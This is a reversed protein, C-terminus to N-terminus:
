CNFAIEKDCSLEENIFKYYIKIKQSYPQNKHTDRIVHSPYIKEGVEIRNVFTVLIDRTLTDIHTYQRALKFFDEYNNKTREAITDDECDRITKELTISENQLDSLTIKLQEDSIMGSANDTYLKTIAKSIVSLRAQAKEKKIKNNQLYNKGAVKEIAAQTIKNIDDDSLSIINNLDNKVVELLDSYYIRAGSCSNSIDKRSHTCSLYWYKEREGNYVSGSSCMSYGCKECKVIGSFISKRVHDYGEYKKTARGMNAQANDFLTQSILPQHTNKTIAWEEKPVAVKKKSKVSIKKSKGLITHGLYVQNKLIRKVTTYNWIDSARSAGESTFNDRYLVRYKLPPIVGDENLNMAIVRTSDGMSAREFIRIVIPATIEDPVLHNKDVPDKKYGFPPCCYYMGNERKTKFVDKIKRSGERLHVENMAFHFPAMVNDHETDFNDGIAIYRIGHEPLFQEAYYSSERMDRGLRSLDKTIVVNVKGKELEKMMNQFAPRDFNGGSYGDDVFEGVLIINNQKCYNEIIMRQNTISTSEGRQAEEKSLRLYDYALLSNNTIM